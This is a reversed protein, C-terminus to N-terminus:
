NIFNEKEKEENLISDSAYSHNFRENHHLIFLQMSRIELSKGKSFAQSM